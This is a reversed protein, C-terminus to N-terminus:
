EDFAGKEIVFESRGNGVVQGKGDVLSIVATYKGVGLRSAVLELAIKRSQIGRREEAAVARSGRAVTVRLKMGALEALTMNSITARLPIKDGPNFLASSIGCTLPPVPAAIDDLVYRERFLSVRTGDEMGSFDLIVPERGTLRYGIEVQQRGPKLTATEHFQRGGVDVTLTCVRPRADRNEVVAFLVNTGESPRLNVDRLLVPTEGLVIHNFDQVLLHNLTSLASWSSFYEVGHNVNLNFGLVTGKAPKEMDLCSFPIAAELIWTNKNTDTSTFVQWPADWKADYVSKKDESRTNKGDYRTALPNAIFQYFHRHDNTPDIFIEVNDDEWVNGDHAVITARIPRDLSTKVGCYLFDRDFALYATADIVGPFAIPIATADKWCPDNLSGDLVPPTEIQRVTLYEAQKAPFRNEPEWTIRNVIGTGAGFCLLPLSAMAALLITTKTM